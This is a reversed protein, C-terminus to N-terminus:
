RRRKNQKGFKSPMRGAKDLKYSKKEELMTVNRPISDFLLPEDCIPIHNPVQIKNDAILKQMEQIRHLRTGSPFDNSKGVIGISPKNNNIITIGREPNAHVAISKVVDKENSAPDISMIIRPEKFSLHEWDMKFEELDFLHPRQGLEIFKPFNRKHSEIELQVIEEVWKEILPISILLFNNNSSQKSREISEAIRESLLM